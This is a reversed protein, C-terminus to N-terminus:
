HEERNEKIYLSYIMEETEIAAEIAQKLEEGTEPKNLLEVLKKADFTLMQEWIGLPELIKRLKEINYSKVKRESRSIISKESYLQCLGHEDCYRHIIQQLEGLRSKVTKEQAKLEVYEDVVKEIVIAEEKSEEQKIYKHKYFPCLAQFDCWPCLANQVPDFDQRAVGEAVKLIEEKTAEIDKKTRSTTMKQNPILFYFSLKEPEWGWTEQAALHYISLQLDSDVKAKPPLRRNTKYDIIEYGGSLLKDMRDIIGSVTLDDNLKIEFRQELAVPIQFDKVNTRYYTRLIQKGQELFDQEQEPSEYGERKWNEVLANLLDEESAPKPVPVDYLWKLAAHISNGFSLNPTPKPPLKDVYQFKYQLPCTQYTSISSYSLRM